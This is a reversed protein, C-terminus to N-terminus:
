LKGSMGAKSALVEIRLNAMILEYNDGCMYCACKLSCVSAAKMKIPNVKCVFCLEKTM